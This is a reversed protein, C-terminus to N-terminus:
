ILFHNLISIYDNLTSTLGFFIGNKCCYPDINSHISLLNKLKNIFNKWDCFFYRPFISIFKSEILLFCCKVANLWENIAIKFVLKM